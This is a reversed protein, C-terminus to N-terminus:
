LCTTLRMQREEASLCQPTYGNAEECEKDPEGCCPCEDEEETDEDETDETVLPIVPTLLPKPQGILAVGPREGASPQTYRAYTQLENSKVFETFFFKHAKCGLIPYNRHLGWDYSLRIAGWRGNSKVGNITVTKDSTRIVVFYKKTIVGIEYNSQIALLYDGVRPRNQEALAITWCPHGDSGLEANLYYPASPNPMDYTESYNM